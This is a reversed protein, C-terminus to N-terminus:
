EDEEDDGFLDEDGNSNSANSHPRSASLMPMDGAPIFSAPRPEEEEEQEM